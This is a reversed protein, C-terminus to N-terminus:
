EAFATRSDFAAEPPNITPTEARLPYALQGVLTDPLKAKIGYAAPWEKRPLYHTGFIRDLWPLTSAYNRNVPTTTHHWHHFAPTSILWELPGFRWRVNAHIFFGWVTGILTAVVPAASGAPSAPSGLGLVYIPVLGCFRGFVMDVPHARTNVLFDVEEASHHISHFRWLYPIEHSWRHGWYYGVEGAVLGALARAWLPLAAATALVGGPVARHVAWALLGVPVSLLLAPVLSSLFYYGLDTAIGKRFIKQPHAAFLRELPVFIVVLITLWLSLRFVDILFAHLQPGMLQSM